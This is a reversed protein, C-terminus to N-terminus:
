RYVNEETEMSTPSLFISHTWNCAFFWEICSASKEFWYATVSNRCSGRTFWSRFIANRPPIDQATYFNQCFLDQLFKINGVPVFHMWSWWLICGAGLALALWSERYGAPTPILNCNVSLPLHLSVNYLLRYIMIILYREGALQLPIWARVWKWM